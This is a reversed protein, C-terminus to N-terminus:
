SQYYNQRETFIKHNPLIIFFKDQEIMLEEEESTFLVEDLKERDRKGVIEIRIRKGDAYRAITERALSYINKKPMKLVFIEQGFCTSAAEFVLEVAEEIKMFFRKMKKDTVTIAEGNKIQKIWTPIVSGRSNLVNGFRVVSFKTPADGLYNQTSIIMREMLLKTIGMVTNPNVAKDTSVAIVKKVHHKISLDILNQTGNVNTKIAEFPNYECYPVHKLAAAHFILDVGTIARELRDKDRIDGILFRIDSEPFEKELEQQLFYHKSEDRSFIRIQSPEFQLLKRVMVSGISGTGGTVLIKKNKFTQLLKNSM